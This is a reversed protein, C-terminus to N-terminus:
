PRADNDNTKEYTWVGMGKGAQMALDVERRNAEPPVDVSYLLGHQAEYVCGLRNLLSLFSRVDEADSSVDDNLSVRYTTHRGRRVISQVVLVGDEDPAAKVIDACSVGEAYLPTNDLKFTNETLQEAWLGETEYPPWDDVPELKFRVKVRPLKQGFFHDMRWADVNWGSQRATRAQTLTMPGNAGEAADPASRQALDNIWGCIPCKADALGNPFANGFTCVPCDSSDALDTM